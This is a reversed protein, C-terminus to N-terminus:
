GYLDEQRQLNGFRMMPENFYLKKTGIPGHRQKAIILDAHNKVRECEAAWEAYRVKFKDEAEGTQKQPESRKLYYYDRYLFWVSHADEEIEGSQRLDSLQPRKDDRGEVGRNLQCLLLVACQLEKAMRNVAKAIDGLQQVRHAKEDPARIYGIHDIVILKLDGAQRKIARAKTHMQSVSLGASDDFFMPLAGIEGQAKRLAAMEGASISRPRGLRAPEVGAREGLLRMLLQEESMELSFFIAPGHKEAVHRALHLALATKGMSPRAALVVTQGWFLGSTMRDLDSLGTSVGITDGQHQAVMEIHAIAAQGARESTAVPNLGDGAAIRQLTDDFRGLRELASEELDPNSLDAQFQRCAVMAERRIALDYIARGYDGANAVTPVADMLHILYQGRGVDALRDDAEFFSRLTVGDASRGAEIQKRCADYIAGHADFVFHEARLFEAVQDFARNDALIAGLLAQEAEANAPLGAADQMAHIEATM